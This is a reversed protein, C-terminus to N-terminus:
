FLRGHALSRWVVELREPAHAPGSAARVRLSVAFEHREFGAAELRAYAPHDYGSVLASGELQLVRDVLEVHDAESLEHVYERGGRQRARTRVSFPYPPDLYFCADAHDYRELCDRWDLHEVQVLRLREVFEWFRDIRRVFARGRPGHTRAHREASWGVTSPNGGYAQAIRVYWRRAREVEDEVDEWTALCLEFEERAFPTLQLARILEDPRDRLVRFFNVLGSDRDNYVELKALPKSLLVSAGGGFAEIYARHPPLLGVIKPALAQKGGYWPFPSGPTSSARGRGIPLAVRAM